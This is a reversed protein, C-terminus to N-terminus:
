LEPNEREQITLDIKKLSTKFFFGGCCVFIYDPGERIAKNFNEKYNEKQKQYYKKRSLQFNLTKKILNFVNLKRTKEKQRYEIHKVKVRHHLKKKLNNRTHFEENKRLYHYTYLKRIKELSNLNPDALIRRHRENKRLSEKVRFWSYTM